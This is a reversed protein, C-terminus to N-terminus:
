FLSPFCRCHANRTECLSLFSLSVQLLACDFCCMVAVAVLPCNHKLMGAHFLQSYIAIPILQAVAVASFAPGFFVFTADEDREHYHKSVPDTPTDFPGPVGTTMADATTAIMIIIIGIRVGTMILQVIAQFLCPLLCYSTASTLAVGAAMTVLVKGM